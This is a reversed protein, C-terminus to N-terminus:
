KMRKNREYIFPKLPSPVPELLKHRVNAKQNWFLRNANQKANINEKAAERAVKQLKGTNEQIRQLRQKEELLEKKLEEADRIENNFRIRHWVFPDGTAHTLLAILSFTQLLM